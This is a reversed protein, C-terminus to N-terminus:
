KDTMLVGETELPYPSVPINYVTTILYFGNSNTFGTKGTKGIIDGRVITDNVNVKVTGLHAYWTKLGFGHDIIIFNGLLDCTGVYSVIGTNIARVNVGSESTWYDVGDLRYSTLGSDITRLHGFGLYLIMPYETSTNTSGNPPSNMLFTQSFYKVSSTVGTLSNLLNSYEKLSTTDRKVTINSTDYVRVSMEALSTVSLELTTPINSYTVTISYSTPSPLDIDIPILARVYQGDTFFTPTFDLSPTCTLKIKDISKIYKGSLVVFEGSQIEDKELWFMPSANIVTTFEYNLEGYYTCGDTKLWEANIIYKYPNQFNIDANTFENLTGNFIAIDGSYATIACIDPETSFKLEFKGSVDLTSDQLEATSILNNKIYQNNADLYMWKVSNPIITDDTTTTLTPPSSHKYLSMAYKTAMFNIYFESDVSYINNETDESYIKKDTESYYYKYLFENKLSTLRVTISSMEDLNGSFDKLEKKSKEAEEFINIMNSLDSNNIKVASGESNFIEIVVAKKSANSEIISGFICVLVAALTPIFIMAILITRKIWMKKNAM